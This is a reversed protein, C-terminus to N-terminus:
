RWDLPEASERHGGAPHDQSEELAARHGAVRGIGPEAALAAEIGDYLTQIEAPGYGGQRPSVRFTVLSEVDIGLEVRAVNVRYWYGGAGFPGM